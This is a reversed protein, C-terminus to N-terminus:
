EIKLDAPLHLTTGIKAFRTGSAAALARRGYYPTRELEGSKGHGSFFMRLYRAPDLLDLIPRLLQLRVKVFYLFSRGLAEKDPERDGPGRSLGENAPRGGTVRSPAGMNRPNNGSGPPGLTVWSVM